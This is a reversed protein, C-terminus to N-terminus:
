RFVARIQVGGAEVPVEISTETFSKVDEKTTVEWHDFARGTENVTVTVPYDTFYIGQWTGCIEPRITNLTIPCGNENSSLTVTEQTGGLGFEEAM